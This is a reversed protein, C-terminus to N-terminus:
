QLFVEEMELEVDSYWGPRTSIRPVATLAMLTMPKVPIVLDNASVASRLEPEFRMVGLGGSDSNVDETLIVMQSFGASVVEVVDGAKLLGATSNTLGKLYVVGGTQTLSGSGGDVMCARVFSTDRWVMSGQQTWNAALTISDLLAPYCSTTTPSCRLTKRGLPAARAVTGYDTGFATSGCSLGALMTGGGGPEAISRLAYTANAVVTVASATRLGSTVTADTRTGRVGDSDTTVTRGTGGTWTGAIEPAAILESSPFSGRFNHSPEWLWFARWTGVAACFRRMLHRNDLSLDKFRLRCGLRDTGYRMVNYSRFGYESQFRRSADIVFWESENILNNLPLVTPVLVTM